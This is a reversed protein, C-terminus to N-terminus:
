SNRLELLNKIINILFTKENETLAVDEFKVENDNQDLLKFLDNNTNVNELIRLQEEEKLNAILEILQNKDAFDELAEKYKELEYEKLYGAEALLSSYSYNLGESLKAINEIKPTGRLGNELKSLYGKSLGTKDNLEQLTMQNDLRISKILEGFSM